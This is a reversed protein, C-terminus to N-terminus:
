GGAIRVSASRTRRGDMKSEEARLAERVVTLNHAAFLAEQRLHATQVTAEDEISDQTYKEGAAQKEARTRLRTQAFAVKFDAEARAAALAAARAEAVLDDLRNECEEILQTIMYPNPMHFTM